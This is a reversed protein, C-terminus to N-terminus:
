INTSRNCSFVSGTKSSSRRLRLLCDSTGLQIRSTKPDGRLLYILLPNRFEGLNGCPISAQMAVGHSQVRMADEILM